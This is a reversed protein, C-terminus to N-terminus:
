KIIPYQKMLQFVAEYDKGLLFSQFDVNINHLIDLEMDQRYHGFREMGDIGLFQRKDAYKTSELYNTVNDIWDRYKTKDPSRREEIIRHFTQHINEQQIYFVIPNTDEIQNILDNFYANAKELSYDHNLILENIHNQLFICEFIYLKNSDFTQNFHNWRKKHVALFDEISEWKSVEYREMDDFFEKSVNPHNIRAYAIIYYNNEKVTHKKIEEKLFPYKKNIEAFESETCYSCWALDIPHLDGENYLTVDMGLSKYYEALRRAFTTKGSGPLGEIFIVNHKM